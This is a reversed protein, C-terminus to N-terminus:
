DERTDGNYELADREEDTLLEDNIEEAIAIFIGALSALHSVYEKFDGQRLFAKMHKVAIPLGDQVRWINEILNREAPTEGLNTRM